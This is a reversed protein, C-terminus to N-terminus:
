TKEEKERGKKVLGKELWALGKQVFVSDIGNEWGLKSSKERLRNTRIGRRKESAAVTCVELGEQGEAARQKV